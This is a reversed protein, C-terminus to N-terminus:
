PEDVSMPQSRQKPVIWFFNSTEAVIDQKNPADTQLRKVMGELGHIWSSHDCMNHYKMPVGYSTDMHPFNAQLEEDRRLWLLYEHKPDYGLCRKMKELFIDYRLDLLRTSLIGQWTYLKASPDNFLGISFREPDGHTGDHSVRCVTIGQSVSIPDPGSQSAWIDLRAAEEELNAHQEQTRAKQRRYTRDRYACDCLCKLTYEQDIAYKTRLREPFDDMNADILRIMAQRDAKTRTTSLEMDNDYFIEHLLDQTALKDWKKNHWDTDEQFWQWIEWKNLMRTGQRRSSPNALSDAIDDLSVSTFQWKISDLDHESLAM